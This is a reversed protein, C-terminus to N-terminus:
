FFIYRILWTRAFPKTVYGFLSYSREEISTNNEDHDPRYLTFTFPIEILDSLPFVYHSMKYDDMKSLKEKTPREPCRYGNLLFEKVNAFVELFNCSAPGKALLDTNNLLDHDATLNTAIEEDVFVLNDINNYPSNFNYFLRDKIHSEKSSALKKKNVIVEPRTQNNSQMQVNSFQVGNLQKIFVEGM